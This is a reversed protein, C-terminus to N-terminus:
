FHVTLAFSSKKTKNVNLSFARDSETFARVSPYGALRFGHRRGMLRRGVRGRRGRGAQRGGAQGNPRGARPRGTTPADLLEEQALRVLGRRLPDPGHLVDEGELLHTM